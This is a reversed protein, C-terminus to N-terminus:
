NDGTEIYVFPIYTCDREMHLTLKLTFSYITKNYIYLGQEMFIYRPIASVDGSIRLRPM